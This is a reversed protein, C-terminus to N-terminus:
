YVMYFISYHKVLLSGTHNVVHSHFLLINFMLYINFETVDVVPSVGGDCGAVGTSTIYNLM